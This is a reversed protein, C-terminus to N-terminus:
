ALDVSWIALMADQVPSLVTLNIPEVQDIVEMAWDMPIGPPPGQTVICASPAPSMVNTAPTPQVTRIKPICYSALINAHGVFQPTTSPDMTVPM